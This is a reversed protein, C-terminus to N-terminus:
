YREGTWRLTAASVTGPIPPEDLRYGYVLGDDGPCPSSVVWLRDHPDIAIYGEHSWRERDSWVADQLRQIGDVAASTDVEIALREVRPPPGTRETEEVERLMRLAAQTADQDAWEDWSKWLVLAFLVLCMVAIPWGVPTAIFAGACFAYIATQLAVSGYEISRAAM